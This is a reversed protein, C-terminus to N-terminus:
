SFKLNAFKLIYRRKTGDPYLIEVQKSEGTGSQSVVTGKGYKDHFATKGVLSGSSSTRSTEAKEIIKELENVRAELKNITFILKLWKCVGCIIRWIKKFLWKSFRWFFCCIEFFKWGILAGITICVLYFVIIWFKNTIWQTIFNWYLLIIGVILGGIVTAAVQKLFDM